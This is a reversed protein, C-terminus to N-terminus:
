IEALLQRPAFPVGLFVQRGAAKSALLCHQTGFAFGMRQGDRAALVPGVLEPSNFVFHGGDAPCLAAALPGATVEVRGPLRTRLLELDFGTLRSAQEVSIGGPGLLGPLWVWLM